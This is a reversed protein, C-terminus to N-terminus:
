RQIGKYFSQIYNEEGKEFLTELERKTNKLRGEDFAKHSSLNYAANYLNDTMSKSFYQYFFHADQPSLVRLNNNFSFARFREVADLWVRAGIDALESLSKRRKLKAEALNIKYQIASLHKIDSSEGRAMRLEQACITQLDSAGARGIKISRGTNHDVFDMVLHAHWNVHEADKGEDRHIAIQFVDIGFKQRLREALNKLDAMTTEPKIVVVGERLPTAAKQIKRGTKEKVLKKIVALRNAQSDSEWYENLRTRNPMVYSLQKERKNHQESGAKVPQIHISTQQQQKEAM